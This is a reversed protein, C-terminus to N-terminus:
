IQIDNSGQSSNVYRLYWVKDNLDARTSVLKVGWFPMLYVLQYMQGSHTRRLFSTYCLNASVASHLAQGVVCLAPKRLYRLAPISAQTFTARSPGQLLSEFLASLLPFFCCFLHVWHLKKIKNKLNLNLLNLTVKLGLSILVDESESYVLSCASDRGMNQYVVHSNHLARLWSYFIEAYKGFIAYYCKSVEDPFCFSFCVSMVRILDSCMQSKSMCQNVWSLLLMDWKNELIHMYLPINCKCAAKFSYAINEPSVIGVKWIQLVSMVPLKGTAKIQQTNFMFKFFLICQSYWRIRFSLVYRLRSQMSYPYHPYKAFTTFVEIVSTVQVFLVPDKSPQTWRWTCADANM